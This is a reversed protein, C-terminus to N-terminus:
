ELSSLADGVFDAERLSFNLLALHASALKDAAVAIAAAAFAESGLEDAEGETVNRQLEAACAARRAAETDAVIAVFAAELPEASERLASAVSARAEALAAEAAIVRAEALEFAEDLDLADWPPLGATIFDAESRGCLAGGAEIVADRHAEAIADGRTV